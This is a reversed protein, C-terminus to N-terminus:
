GSSDHAQSGGLTIFFPKQKAVARLSLAGRGKTMGLAASPDATGRVKGPFTKRCLAASHIQLKAPEDQFHKEVFRVRIEQWAASSVVFLAGKKLSLRM